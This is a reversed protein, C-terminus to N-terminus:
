EGKRFKSLIYEMHKGAAERGGLGFSLAVAVAIAGLSLGFALHVITGAIGMANLGIALVLALISYRVISPLVGSEGSRSLLKYALNAFFNGGALIVLGLVIQGALVLLGSFVVAMKVMELKEFASIIATFMIFFFAVSGVLKSLSFGDGVVPELGLKAPLKDAGLNKLLEVLMSVVFKGAIFFVALIIAAGVIEPVAALLDNLMGTAPDSIAQMQLADLAVILVPVFIFLFVLQQALRSLSINAGLGIKESLVDVGKAATGVIVSVIRAIIYGALGIVGAAIINPIYSVIEEFMNQLPVLVGEVGLISLVLLLVYLLALYFVFTSVASEIQLSNLRDRNIREDVKLKALLFSVGKRLLGALIFGVILIIAAAIVGPMFSGLKELFPSLFSNEAM